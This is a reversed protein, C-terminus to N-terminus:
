LAHRVEVHHDRDEGGSARRHRERADFALTGICLDILRLYSGAESGSCDRRTLRMTHTSFTSTFLHAHRLARLERNGESDM